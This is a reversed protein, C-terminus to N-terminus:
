AAKRMRQLLLPPPTNAAQAASTSPAVFTPAFGLAVRVKEVFAKGLNKMTSMIDYEETKQRPTEGRESKRKKELERKRAECQRSQVAHIIAKFVAVTKVGIKKLSNAFYDFAAKYTTRTNVSNRM